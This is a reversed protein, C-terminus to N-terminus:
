RPRSAPGTRYAAGYTGVSRDEGRFGFLIEPPSGQSVGITIPDLSVANSSPSWFAAGLTSIVVGGVPGGSSVDRRWENQADAPQSDVVLTVGTLALAAVATVALRRVMDGEKGGRQPDEVGM